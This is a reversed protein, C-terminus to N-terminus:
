EAAKLMRPRASAAPKEGTAADGRMRTLHAENRQRDAEIEGIMASFIEKVLAKQQSAWQDIRQLEEDRKAALEGARAELVDRTMLRDSMLLDSEHQLRAQLDESLKVIDLM